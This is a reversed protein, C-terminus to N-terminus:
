AGDDGDSDDGAAPAFAVPMPSFITLRPSNPAGDLTETLEGRHEGAGGPTGTLTLTERDFQLNNFLGFNTPTIVSGPTAGSVIGVYPVGATSEWPTLTLARLGPSSASEPPPPTGDSMNRGRRHLGEQSRM